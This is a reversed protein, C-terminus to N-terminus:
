ESSNLLHKICFRIGYLITAMLGGIAMTSMVVHIYVSSMACHLMILFMASGFILSGALFMLTKAGMKLEDMQDLLHEAENLHNRLYREYKNDGTYGLKKLGSKMAAIYARRNSRSNKSGIEVAYNALRPLSERYGIDEVANRNEDVANSLAQLRFVAVILIISVLAASAQFLASYFYRYNSWFNSDVNGLLFVISLCLAAVIIGFAIIINRRKMCVFAGYEYRKENNYVINV